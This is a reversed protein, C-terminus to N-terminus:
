DESEPKLDYISSAKEEVGEDEDTEEEAEESEEPTEDAVAEELGDDGDLDEEYATYSKSDSAKQSPHRHGLGFWRFRSRRCDM